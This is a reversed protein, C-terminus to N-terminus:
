AYIAQNHARHYVVYKTSRAVQAAEDSSNRSNLNQQPKSPNRYATSCSNKASHYSPFLKLQKLRCETADLCISEFRSLLDDVSPRSEPNEDFIQVLLADLAKPVGFVRSFFSSNRYLTFRRYHNDTLIPKEWPNRGTLLNILVVGLAWVDSKEPSYLSNEEDCCEPSMYRVSGCGHQDSKTAKTALGFDALKIDATEASCTPRSILINEPKIDRHFVGNRHSHALARLIKMYLPAATELSMGQGYNDMLFDYLDIYCKEMIMFAHTDTELFAYVKVISRHYPMSSLLHYERKLTSLNEVPSNVKDVVKVAVTNGRYTAMQVSAFSGSGITKEFKLDDISINAFSASTNITTSMM